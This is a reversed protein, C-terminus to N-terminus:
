SDGLITLYLGMSVFMCALSLHIVSIFSQKGELNLLPFGHLAGGEWVGLRQGAEANLYLKQWCEQNQGSIIM